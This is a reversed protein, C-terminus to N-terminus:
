SANAPSGGKVPGEGWAIMARRNTSGGAGGRRTRAATGGATSAATARASAQSRSSRKGVAASNARARLGADSAAGTLGGVTAASGGVRRAGLTAQPDPAGGSGRQEPTGPGRGWREVGIEYRHSGEVHQIGSEREPM